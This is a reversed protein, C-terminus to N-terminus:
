NTNEKERRRHPKDEPELCERLCRLVYHEVMRGRWRAAFDTNDMPTAARRCLRAAEALTESSVPQDVLVRAAEPVFRPLSAVAGLFIRAREIAGGPTGWLSTAVSLVAFDISGRRRLKAFASRCHHRDASRPLLIETIIEDRRKHLYDIGDDRYFDELALIREGSTSTLTVRAGLACLVPATDSASIAWCRPSSPAVWCIGTPPSASGSGPQATGSQVTGPEKMCYDIAQRWEESQNYYTCRTDLCLNGGLTGMNRLVPTSITRVAQDLSPYREEVLASDAIETLTTTAGIRLDGDETESIGRLDPIANLSIVTHARQHRRKLNPWLDTGGAVVRVGPDTRAAALLEAAEALSCPRELEFPPLRLM